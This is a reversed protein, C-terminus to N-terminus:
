FYFSYDRYCNGDTHLMCGKVQPTVSYKVELGDFWAEVRSFIGCEYQGPVGMRKMGDYAFCQQTEMHFLNDSPSSMSFAMFDGGFVEWAKALTEKLTEFTDIKGIGFAKKVRKIEIVGLSRGAAKNLRNTKEIGLEQLCHYFWMGDHTMWCKILLEKLEKKDLSIM